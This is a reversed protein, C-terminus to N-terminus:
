PTRVITRFNQIAIYAKLVPINCKQKHTIMIDQVVSVDGNKTLNLRFQALSVHFIMCTQMLNM